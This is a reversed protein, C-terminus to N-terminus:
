IAGQVTTFKWDSRAVKKCTKWISCFCFHGRNKLPRQLNIIRNDNFKCFFKKLWKANISGTYQNRMNKVLDIKEHIVSNFMCLENLAMYIYRVIWLCLKFRTRVKADWLWFHHAQTCALVSKKFFTGKQLNQFFITNVNFLM